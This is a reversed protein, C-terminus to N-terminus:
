VVVRFSSMIPRPIRSQSMPTGIGIMMRSANILYCRFTSRRSGACCKENEYRSEAQSGPSASNNLSRQRRPAKRTTGSSRAITVSMPMCIRGPRLEMRAGVRVLSRWRCRVNQVNRGHNICRFVRSKEGDYALGSNQALAHFKIRDATRSPRNLASGSCAM